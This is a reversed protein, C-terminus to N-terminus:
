PIEDIEKDPGARRLIAVGNIIAMSMKYEDNQGFTITFLNQSYHGTLRKFRYKAPIEPLMLDRMAQKALERNEPALKELCHKFGPLTPNISVFPKQHPPM